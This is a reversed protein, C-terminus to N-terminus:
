NEDGDNLIEVKLGDELTKADIAHALRVFNSKDEESLRSSSPNISSSVINYLMKLYLSSNDLQFLNTRRELRNLLIDYVKLALEHKGLEGLSPEALPVLLDLRFILERKDNKRIILEIADDLYVKRDFLPEVGLLRNPNAADTTEASDQTAPESDDGEDEENNILLLDAADRRRREFLSYFFRLAKYEDQSCTKLRKGSKGTLTKVVEGHRRQWSSQRYIRSPSKALELVDLLQQANETLTLEIGNLLESKPNQDGMFVILGDDSRLHWLLDSAEKGFLFLSPIAVNQVGDGSMAFLPSSSHSSDPNNDMVLMALAGAEELKRAKDIFMCEGRKVVVIKGFYHLRRPYPIDKCAELPEALILQGFLGLSSRLERGFQAPGALYIKTGNHPESMLVVSMPKYDDNLSNSKLQFNQQKSLELMETMFIIGMEANEYDEADGTKHVLQVRGDQMTTLKIGMKKLIDMHDQRGAVFDAARLPMEKLKKGVQSGESQFNLSSHQCRQYSMQTVSERLKRTSEQISKEDFKASSSEADKSGFLFKLSPCSKARWSQNTIMYGPEAARKEGDVNEQIDPRQNMVYNVLDLPLLHAETTFIFDDIDFLLQDDEEFLLYLYKFTEAYVFSDMRDEHQKTKVDAIAAYGCKVRSYKELQNLTKKAIELYYDDKTARYLHYTSELFEPRLPHNSWMVSHDFLVAEPLFDHKKVIQHLTEHMKIAGKIDGKLVQLGPWFALLADMYNKAQRNPMHMHVTQMFSGDGVGAGNSNLNMYKMISDYHRNFRYLFTDDGLLIYGKFLYEYYSDIGAGISSDKVLWEGDHINITTGVLDSARNRKEWIFDMTKRVKDEFVPDGTLRSLVAFELLLTGACATCTYRDKESNMLQPTIGHKLNIRSMPLGTSTNFAPLLRTGLDKAKILLEDRYWKFRNPKRSRIYIVSVHGGILGGLMRINSEFVSVVLDRDFHTTAIVDKVAQELQDIRGLVALTDLSDVLTLTFNGLVEDIDGRSTLPDRYRGKCSLPMLEDAPFAYKMYSEFAHDFMQLVQDRLGRKEEKTMCFAPIVLLAVLYVGLLQRALAGAM